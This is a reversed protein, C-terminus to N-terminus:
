PLTLAAGLSAALLAIRINNFVFLGVNIAFRRGSGALYEAERISHTILLVGIAGYFLWGIPHDAEVISFGALLAGLTIDTAALAVNKTTLWTTVSPFTMGFLLLASEGSILGGACIALIREM